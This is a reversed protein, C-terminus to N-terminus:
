RRCLESDYRCAVVQPTEVPYGADISRALRLFQAHTWALPRASFTAEGPQFWPADGAPPRWDWVQEAMMGTAADASAAMADLHRSAGAGAALEYEGREGTLLPWGRGLTLGSGEDTPEWRSGDRMEGYGDFTSRRWFPGNPTRYGLKDDVVEITNLITPDDARKVGLRVLELFSPDVLRRQDVLPGGDPV